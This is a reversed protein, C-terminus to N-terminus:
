EISRYPITSADIPLQPQWRAAVLGMTRVNLAQHLSPGVVVGKIPVIDDDPPPPINPFPPRWSDTVLSPRVNKWLDLLDVFPALFDRRPHFQITPRTGPYIPTYILRWEREERFGGHKMLPICHVLAEVTAERVSPDNYHHRFNSYGLELIGRVLLRQINQDYIVYDSRLGPFHNTIRDVGAKELVLAGGRGDRAYARWQSLLDASAPGNNDGECMCFVYVDLDKIRTDLEQGVEDFFVNYQGSNNALDMREKNILDTAEKLERHDNSYEAHSLRVSRSGVINQLVELSSYHFLKAPPRPLPHRQGIDALVKKVINTAETVLQLTRQAM